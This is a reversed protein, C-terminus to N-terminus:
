KIVEPPSIKESTSLESLSFKSGVNANFLVVAASPTIPVSVSVSFTLLGLSKVHSYETSLLATCYKSSPSVTVSINVTVTFPTLSSTVIVIVPASSGVSIVILSLAPSLAKPSTVSSLETLSSVNDAEPLIVNLSRSSESLASKLGVDSNLAVVALGVAKPLNSILASPM